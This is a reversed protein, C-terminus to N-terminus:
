VVFVKTYVNSYGSPTGQFDPKGEPTVPDCFTQFGSIQLTNVSYVATQASDISAKIVSFGKIGM